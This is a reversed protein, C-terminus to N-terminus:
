WVEPRRFENMNIKGAKMSLMYPKGSPNVCETKLKAFEEFHRELDSWAINSRYKFLVIHTIPAMIINRLPYHSLSGHRFTTEEYVSSNKKLQSNCFTSPPLQRTSIDLQIQYNKAVRVESTDGVPAKIMKGHVHLM